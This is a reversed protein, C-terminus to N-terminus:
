VAGDSVAVRRYGANYLYEAMELRPCGKCLTHMTCTSDPMCDCIDKALETIHYEKNIDM